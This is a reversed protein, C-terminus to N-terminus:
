ELAEVFARDIVADDMSLRWNLKSLPLGAALVKRFPALDARNELWAQLIMCGVAPLRGNEHFARWLKRHRLVDWQLIYIMMFYKSPVWTLRRAYRAYNEAWRGILPNDPHAAIFWNDFWRDHYPGGFVFFGTQGALLPLWGDLPRHCYTTADTWVGGYRALLRLRLVDAHFRPPLHAPVDSIDAYQAVSADDLVRIDWGPNLRRWSAICLRVVHPAQAEGQRWYIWLIRPIDMIGTM